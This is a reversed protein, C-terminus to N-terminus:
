LSHGVETSSVKMRDNGCEPFEHLGKAAVLALGPHVYHWASDRLRQPARAVGDIEIQLCLGLLLAIGLIFHEHLIVKRGRDAKTLGTSWQRVRAQGAALGALNATAGSAVSGTCPRVCRRGLPRRPPGGATEKGAVLRGAGFRDLPAGLGGLCTPVVSSAARAVFCGGSGAAPSNRKSAPPPCPLRRLPASWVAGQEDDVRRGASRWRPWPFAPAPSRNRSCSTPRPRGMASPSFTSRRITAMASTCPTSSSYESSSSTRHRASTSATTTRLTASMGEGRPDAAAGRRRDPALTRGSGPAAAAPFAAHRPSPRWSGSLRVARGHSPRAAPPDALRGGAPAGPGRALIKQLSPSAPPSAALRLHAPGRTPACERRRAPASRLM